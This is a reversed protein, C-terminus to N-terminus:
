VTVFANGLKVTDGPRLMVGQEPALRQGNYASGNRSNADVFYWGDPRPEFRGHRRSVLPDNVYLPVDNDRGAVITGDEFQREREGDADRIRLRLRGAMTERM